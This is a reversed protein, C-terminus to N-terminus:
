FCRFSVLVLLCILLQVLWFRLVIQTESVGKEVLVSEFHHHLPAMAFLRKGEGPLRTTLKLWIIKFQSIKKQSAYPKTLKFWIVQLMVSITEAIYILALPIFWFVMGGALVLAAMLGGLFLSGTDGMFIQAPSRNYFLFGLLSGAITAAIAALVLQGTSAFLAGMTAFVLASTGAALGDMGDHLNIANSTAAVLFAGLSIYLGLPILVSTFKGALCPLLIIAQNGNAIFLLLALSAGLVLELVLRLKASLGQNTQHRVKALDDVLGICGCAIGAVVVFIGHIDFRFHPARSLLLVALAAFIFCVGGTTPTKGKALHSKPGEERLFQRIQYHKVWHIYFPLLIACVAMGCAALMLMSLPFAFQCPFM